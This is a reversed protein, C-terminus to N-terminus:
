PALIGVQTLDVRSLLLYAITMGMTLPTILIQLVTIKTIVPVRWLWGKFAATLYCRYSNRSWRVRQKVFATFTSPFMSLAKASRQHVTRYGSALVLWTLRGDDGAICRRGLFFEDEMDKVVPVVASARYAATRGSLCAVAGFRGQAPLDSSCVDSSWDRKSRTHRRRSSFFFS